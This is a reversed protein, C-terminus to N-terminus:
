NSLECEGATVNSFFSAKLNRVTNSYSDVPAWSITGYRFHSAEAILFWQLVAAQFFLRSAATLSAM